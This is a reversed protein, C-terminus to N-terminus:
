ATEQQEFAPYNNVVESWQRRGAALDSVLKPLEDIEARIQKM